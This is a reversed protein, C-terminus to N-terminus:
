CILFFFFNAAMKKFLTEVSQVLWPDDGRRVLQWSFVNSKSADIDGYLRTTTEYLKRIIEVNPEEQKSEILIMEKYVPLNPPFKFKPNNFLDRANLVGFYLARYKLYKLKLEQAVDLRGCICKSFIIEAEERRCLKLFFEIM